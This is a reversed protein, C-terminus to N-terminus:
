NGNRQKRLRSSQEVRDKDGWSYLPTSVYVPPSDLPSNPPPPLPALSTNIGLHKINPFGPQGLRAKVKTVCKLSAIDFM